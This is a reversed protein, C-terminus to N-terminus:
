MQMPKLSKQNTTKTQSTPIMFTEIIRNYLNQDVSSYYSVPNNESPKALKNYEIFNLHNPSQKVSKIWNTFDTQSVAKAAFTMRAFGQGNINAPSGYFKGIRSAELHLQTSMGPMAYIQGGLSPIWFSNMVTDSTLQFAIPTNKPFEILNVSAINQKPYIFLWKWNMAVVQVTIPKTNSILPKYPSLSHSSQWAIISLTLIIACPITWWLIELTSNHDWDPTYATKTNNEGYKFSIFITLAFVPIVVILMILTSIIILNREKLAVIGAPNLIPINRNHLLIYGLLTLSGIGIIICIILKVKHKM